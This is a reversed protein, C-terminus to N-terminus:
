FRTWFRTGPAFTSVPRTVDAHWMSATFPWWTAFAAAGVGRDFAADRWSTGADYVAAWDVFVRLGTRAMAMPSGFPRAM